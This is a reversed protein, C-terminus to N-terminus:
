RAPMAQNQATTTPLETGAPRPVLKTQFADSEVIRQVLSGFRYQDAAVERVIRRILPMDHYEVNRGLAYLMLRETLTQVFQDPHRLLAARLDEPGHLKTGDPLEGSSDIVSGAFRDKERWAGVGDFNELAFGLPDMVGHCSNCSPNERHAALRERVTHFVKASPDNEKLLAEVAPPPPAPPTGLINELIWAGRLVPATRDPYSTSMLVAGKGLLGFRRPDKLTVRRFRDGKVDSIGYHLALQENLYSHDATLLDLVSRNERFISDIFLSVETLYAPRIDNDLYVGRMVRHEAAQPFIRPNPDIEALKGLHLWQRAFNDSLTASKPDQLMRTVQQRLVKPQSLEGREALKLLAEDPISSWLFFSLRSALELDSLRHVSGPAASEPTTEARYLFNPSALMRTLGARVGAEFSEGQKRAGDYARLLAEKEGSDLPRRYALRALRFLIQQACAPEQAVTAPKCSFIQRRSPTDTLGTPNFPGRVEFSRMRPLADVGGGPVLPELLGDMEAFSRFEFSVAVKHPGATSKFRINKLRANIADMARSGEQDLAKLDEEGGVTTEFVLRSDVTVVVRHKFPLAIEYIGLAMDNINLEYEGDAPFFHEVVMGGRTGLPAGDLHIHQTKGNKEAFYFRSDGGADPRGVAQVAVVRAAALYQNFFSPSVQLVSAVNDFGDSQDDQPLLEAANVDLALLDRVANAFEKRNLRHLAVRGPDPPATAHESDISSEMWKVFSNFQEESPRKEGPPPMLRGRLKRVVAEWTEAEKGVSNKEIADLALGGAWDTTNHCSECYNGLFSWQTEGHPSQAAAAALPLVLLMSLASIRQLLKM